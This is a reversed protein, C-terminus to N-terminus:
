MNSSPRKKKRHSYTSQPYHSPPFAYVLISTHSYIYRVRPLSPPLSKCTATPIRYRHLPRDAPPQYEEVKATLSSYKQERICLPSKYSQEKLVRGSAAKTTASTVHSPTRPEKAGLKDNRLSVSWDSMAVIQAHFATHFLRKGVVVEREARIFCGAKTMQTAKRWRLPDLGEYFRKFAQIYAANHVLDVRSVTRGLNTSYPDM